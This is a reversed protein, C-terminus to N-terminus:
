SGRDFVARDHIVRVAGAGKLEFILRRPMRAIVDQGERKYIIGARDLRALLGSTDGGPELEIWVDQMFDDARLWLGACLEDAIRGCENRRAADEKDRMARADVPRGDLDLAVDFRRGARATEVHTEVQAQWIVQGTFPLFEYAGGNVALDATAIGERRAILAIAAPGQDPLYATEGNADVYVDFGCGSVQDAFRGAWTTAHNSGREVVSQPGLDLREPAIGERESIFRRAQEAQPELAVVFAGSSVAPAVPSNLPSALPSIMPSGLPSVLTRATVFEAYCMNRAPGVAMEPAPGEKCAVLGMVGCAILLCRMFDAVSLTHKPFRQGM